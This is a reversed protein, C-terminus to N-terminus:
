RLEVAYRDKYQDPKFPKGQRELESQGVIHASWYQTINTRSPNVGHLFAM